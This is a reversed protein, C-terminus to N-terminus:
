EFKNSVTEEDKPSFESRVVEMLAKKLFKQTKKRHRTRMSYPFEFHLAPNIFSMVGFNRTHPAKYYIEDLVDIKVTIKGFGAEELADKLIKEIRQAQEYSIGSTAIEIRNKVSKKSNGHIEVYLRLSKNIKRIKKLYKAYVVAARQTFLTEARKVGETPRNVNIPVDVKRFGEVILCDWHIEQCFQWVIEGTKEDFDGHPATIM